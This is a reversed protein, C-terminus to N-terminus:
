SIKTAVGNSDFSYGYSNCDHAMSGNSYLLYYKDNDLVWGTAMKGDAQLYYWDSNYKIWEAKAMMCNDKLYYYYGGDQIWVSQRAYGDSDFSYWEGDIYRWSDKYYYKNATDTCYWWGTNNKNWGLVINVEQLKQKIDTWRQWNNSSFSNPCCKRSADYHRVVHDIDINYKNMLYKILDLTNQITAGSPIGDSEICMEIGLSNSNSIGYVGHGDGCHWSYYADTNIIQIINASDVFFDASAQRDGGAFYDHENQAIAGPDGTDHIVIYQPVTSRATKNYSIIQEQIDLM